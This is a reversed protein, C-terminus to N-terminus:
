GERSKLSYATTPVVFAAVLASVKWFKNFQM